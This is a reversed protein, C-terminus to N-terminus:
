AEVCKKINGRMKLPRITGIKLGEAKIKPNFDWEHASMKSTKKEDPDKGFGKVRVEVESFFFPPKGLWGFQHDELILLFGVHEM